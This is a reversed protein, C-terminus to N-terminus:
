ELTASFPKGEQTWYLTSSALALSYPAIDSGEALVRTGSKDLAVLEYYPTGTQFTRERSRAIWAAMGDAKVVLRVAPGIGVSGPVEPPSALTGTPVKKEIFRGTALDRVSITWETQPVYKSYEGISYAVITGNLAIQEVGGSAGGDDPLSGLEYSRQNAVCGLYLKADAIRDTWRYVQAKHDAVM